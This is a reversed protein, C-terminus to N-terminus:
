KGGSKRRRTGTLSLLGVGILLLLVGVIGTFGYRWGTAPLEEPFLVDFSGDVANGGEPNVAQLEIPTTTTPATTPTTTSVVTTTPATSTSAPITTTTAPLTTTTPPLTTTTTTTTTEPPSYTVTATVTGSTQGAGMAFATNTVSASSIDGSTITYPATCSVTGSIALTTEASGCNFPSGGNIRDDDIQFQSPGLTTNGSNTIVYTYTVVDGIKSYTSASPTKALSISPNALSNNVWTCTVDEGEAVTITATAGSVQRTGGNPHVVSCNISQLEWLTKSSETVTYVGFSTIGSFVQTNAATGDDVLSFNTLPSPSATFSFSANGEVSAQKVITISAPLIVAAASLSRDMNGSGCNSVNSCGFDVVRMHYPSGSLASASNGSGWDQRRAIHGGWAIVATANTATFFVRTSTQSGGTFDGTFGYASPNAAITCTATGCLNGSNAVSAGGAPFTAGYATIHQSGLQTVGASTVRSDIPIALQSTGGACTVGACPDATTETRDFSTLYDIAHHGGNETSDWELNLFYTQGVTLGTIVSRYAVSEGEAYDSNSTGLNGNQWNASHASDCTTTLNSCQDLAVSPRVAAEAPSDFKVSLVTLFVAVVVMVVFWWRSRTPFEFQNGTQLFSRQSSMTCEEITPFARGITQPTAESNSSLKEPDLCVIEEHHAERYTQLGRMYM